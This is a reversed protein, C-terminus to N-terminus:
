PQAGREFVEDVIGHFEGLAAAHAELAGRMFRGGAAAMRSTKVTVSLPM